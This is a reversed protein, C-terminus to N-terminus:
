YEDDEWNKIINRLSAKLKGNAKIKSKEFEVGINCMAYLLGSETGSEIMEKDLLSLTEAFVDNAKGSMGIEAFNRAAIAFVDFKKSDFIDTKESRLLSLAEELYFHLKPTPTRKKNVSVFETLILARLYPKKLQSIIELAKKDYQMDIFRLAIQSQYKAQEWKGSTWLQGNEAETTDIKKTQEFAFNLIEDAKTKNKRKIYFDALDLLYKQRLHENEALQKALNEAKNIEGLELYIEILRGIDFSDGYDQLNQQPLIKEFIERAKHLDGEALYSKAIEIQTEPDEIIGQRALIEDAEKDKKLTRYIEIVKDIIRGETYEPKGSKWTLNKMSEQLFRLAESEKGLKAYYLGTVAKDEGYKSKEALTKISDIVNLAKATQGLELYTKAIEFAGDIKDSDNFKNLFQLAEYDRKLLILPKFVLQLRYEDDEFKNILFSLFKSAEETKGIKILNDVLAVFDEDVHSEQNVMGAVNELESLKNARVLSKALCVKENEKSDKDTTSLLYFVTNLPSEEAKLKLDQSFAHSLCLNFVVFAFLLKTTPFKM